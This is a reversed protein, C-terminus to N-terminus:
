ENGDGQSPKAKSYLSIEAWTQGIHTRNLVELEEWSVRVGKGKEYAKRMRILADRGKQDWLDTM